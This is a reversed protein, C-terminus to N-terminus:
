LKVGFKKIVADIEGEKVDDTWGMVHAALDAIERIINKNMRSLILLPIRRRIIDELHVAMEHEACFLIEARAFPLDPIIRETLNVYSSVLNKSFFKTETIMERIHQVATGYRFILWAATEPDFGVRINEQIEHKRWAKFDGTPTSPLLTLPCPDSSNIIHNVMKLADVRATTFKGGVSLILSPQPEIMTWERTVQSPPKGPENKLARLGAFSGLIDDKKWIQDKFFRNTETLLYEIDEDEVRLNDPDDNYDADTTGVLTKGYWPIMFFIRNDHRTMLLIADGTPLPPMILHVGKSLRVFNKLFHHTITPEVTPELRLSSGVELSTPEVTPELRLSSGVELRRLSSGVLHDKENFSSAWPGATNVVVKAQIDFVEGTQQDTVTAGIVKNEHILLSDAKVYNVASAGAHIAGRIVDLTFRFDDMQCDGYLLGGRLNEPNLFAYQSLANRRSVKEHSSVPQDKGALLDYLWLGTRLLMPGVRSEKYIPIFFRLPIIQHPAIETLHKREDLSTKVLDFRLHELYRLGGHILKTSASSTGSAWDNKDIIAVNLGRHAAHYATWAGYIGGGIVLVDFPANYKLKSIDRKM